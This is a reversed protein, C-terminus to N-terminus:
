WVQHFKFFYSYKWLGFKAFVLEYKFISNMRYLEILKLVAIQWLLICCWFVKWADDDCCGGLRKMDSLGCRLKCLKYCYLIDYM